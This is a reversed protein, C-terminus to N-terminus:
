ITKLTEFCYHILKKWFNFKESFDKLKTYKTIFIGASSFAREAEILTKLFYFFIIYFWFDM